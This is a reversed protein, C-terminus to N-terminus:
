ADAGEAIPMRYCAADGELVIPIAPTSMIRRVGLPRDHTQKMRRTLYCATVFADSSRSGGRRDRSTRRPRDM